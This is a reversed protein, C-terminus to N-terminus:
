NRIVKEILIKVLNTILLFIKQEIDFKKIEELQRSINQTTSSVRVYAYIM